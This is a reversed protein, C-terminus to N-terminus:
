PERKKAAQMARAIMEGIRIRVERDYMDAASNGAAARAEDAEAYELDWEFYDDASRM